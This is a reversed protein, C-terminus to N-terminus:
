FKDKNKITKNKIHSLSLVCDENKNRILGINTKHELLEM